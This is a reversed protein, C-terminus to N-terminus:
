PGVTPRCNVLPVEGCDEVDIVPLTSGAPLWAEGATRTAVASGDFRVVAVPTGPRHRRNWAAVVARAVLEAAERHEGM